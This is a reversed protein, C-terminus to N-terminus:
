CFFCNWFHFYCFFFIFSFLSLSLSLSLSSLTTANTSVSAESHTLTKKKQAKNRRQDRAQLSQNRRCFFFRIRSSFSISTTDMWIMGRKTLAGSWLTGSTWISLLRCAAALSREGESSSGREREERFLSRKPIERKKQVARCFPSM